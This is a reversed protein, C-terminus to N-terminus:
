IPQHTHVPFLMKTGITFIQKTWTWSSLQRFIYFNSITDVDVQTLIVALLTPFRSSSPFSSSSYPSSSCFSTLLRSLSPSPSSSPSSSCAAWVTCTSLGGEVGALDNHLQHRVIKRGYPVHVKCLVSDSFFSFKGSLLIKTHKCINLMLMTWIYLWDSWLIDTKERRGQRLFKGSKCFKGPLLEVRSGLNKKSQM